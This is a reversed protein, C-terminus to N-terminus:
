ALTNINNLDKPETKINLSENNNVEFTRQRIVGGYAVAFQINEKTTTKLRTCMKQQVEKKNMNVIFVDKVLSETIAGFNCKATFSSFDNSFQRLTEEKQKRSSFKFRQLTEPKPPKEFITLLITAINITPFKNIPTKRAAM